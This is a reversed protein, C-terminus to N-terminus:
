THGSITMVTEAEMDQSIVKHITVFIEFTAWARASECNAELAKALFVSNKLYNDSRLEFKEFNSHLDNM